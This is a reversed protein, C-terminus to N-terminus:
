SSQWARLIGTVFLRLTVLNMASSLVTPSQASSPRGDSSSDTCFPIITVRDDLHGSRMSGCPWPRWHSLFLSSTFPRLTVCSMSFFNRLWRSSAMIIPVGRMISFTSSSSSGIMSGTSSLCTCFFPLARTMTSASLSTSYVLVKLSNRVDLSALGWKEGSSHACSVTILKVTVIPPRSCCSRARVSCCSRASSSSCRWFSTSSTLELWFIRLCSSSSRSKRRAFEVPLRSSSVSSMSTSLLVLVVDASTISFSALASSVSLRM